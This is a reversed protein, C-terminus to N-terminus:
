LDARLSVDGSRFRHMHVWRSRARIFGAMPGSGAEIQKFTDVEASFTSSLLFCLQLGVCFLQQIRTTTLVKLLSVMLGWSTM